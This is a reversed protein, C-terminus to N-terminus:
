QNFFRYYSVFVCTHTHTHTPTHTHTHTHTHTITIYILVIIEVDSSIGNSVRKKLTTKGTSRHWQFSCYRLDM